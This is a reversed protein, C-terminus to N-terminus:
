IFSFVTVNLFNLVFYLQNYGSDIM